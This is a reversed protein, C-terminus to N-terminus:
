DDSSSSVTILKQGPTPPASLKQKTEEILKNLEKVEAPPLTPQNPITTNVNLTRQDIKQIVAGKVRADLMMVTKLLVEAARPNMNGEDDVIKAALIERVRDMGYNLAEKAVNVYDPPPCLIFSFYHHDNLIDWWTKETCLGGYVQAISLQKRNNNLAMDYQCWFSFRLRSVLVPPPHKEHIKRFEMDDKDLWSSKKLSELSKQFNPSHKTISEVSIPSDGHVVRENHFSDPLIDDMPETVVVARKTDEM